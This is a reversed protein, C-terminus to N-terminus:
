SDLRTVTSTEFFHLPSVPPATPGREFIILETRWHRNGLLNEFHIQVVSGAAATPEMPHLLDATLRREAGAAIYVAKGPEILSARAMRGSSDARFRVTAETIRASGSGINQIPISFLSGVLIQGTYSVRAEGGHYGGVVPLPRPLKAGLPVEVIWPDTQAAVQETQLEVQRQTAELARASIFLAVLAAVVTVTAGVSRIKSFLGDTFV